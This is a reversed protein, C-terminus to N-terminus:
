EKFSWALAFLIGGFLHLPTMVENHGIFYIGMLAATGTVVWNWNMTADEKTKDDKAAM